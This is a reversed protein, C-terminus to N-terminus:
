RSRARRRCAPTRRRGAQRALDLDAVHVSQGDDDDDALQRLEAPERRVGVAEDVLHPLEDRVEILAVGRGEGDPEDRERHQQHERAEGARDRGDQDRHDAGGDDGGHEVEVDGRDAGKGLPQGRGLHRPRVDAVDHRQQDGRHPDREHRQGVRDGQGRREVGATALPHPRVLLHDADARGVDGGAEEPPEGDRGAARARRDGLLRPGLALEGADDAGADDHQQEHEEVSEEGVQRVRRQGRHDDGRCQREGVKARSVWTHLNRREATTSESTALAPTM